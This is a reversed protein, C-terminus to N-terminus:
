LENLCSFNSFLSGSLLSLFAMEEEGVKYFSNMTSLDPQYLTPRKDLVKSKSTATSCYLHIYIKWVVIVVYFYSSKRTNQYLIM